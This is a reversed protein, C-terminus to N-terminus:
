KCGRRVIRGAKKEVVEGHSYVLEGGIIVKEIGVSLETPDEYTARDGVRESDFVVLDADYGKCICGKNTLGFTKAPLLTMKHVAEELILM